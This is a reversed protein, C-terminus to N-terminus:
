GHRIARGFISGADRLVGLLWVAVLAAVMPVLLWWTSEAALAAVGFGVAIVALTTLVVGFRGTMFADRGFAWVALLAGVIGVGAMGRPDEVFPWSGRASYGIFPVLVAALILTALVDRSTFRRM